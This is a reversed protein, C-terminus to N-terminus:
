YSSKRALAHKPSFVLSLTVFTLVSEHLLVSMHVRSKQSLFNCCGSSEDLVRVLVDVELEGCVMLPCGFHREEGGEVDGAVGDGSVVGDEEVVAKAGDAEVVRGGFEEAPLDGGPVVLPVVAGGGEHGWDGM